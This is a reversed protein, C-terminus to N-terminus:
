PNPTQRPNYYGGGIGIPGGYGGFKGQMFGPIGPINYSPTTSPTTSPAPAPTSAAAGAATKNRNKNAYQTRDGYISQMMGYQGLAGLSGATNQQGAGMLAQAANYADSYQQQRAQQLQAQAAWSAQRNQRKLGENSAGLQGFADIENRNINSIAAIPNGLKAATGLASATGRQINTTALNYEQNAMGQRAAQQAENAIAQYGEVGPNLLEAQAMAEKGRKKQGIGGLLGAVSSGISLLGGIGGLGSILKGVGSKGVAGAAAGAVAM